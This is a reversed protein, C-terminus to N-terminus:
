AGSPVSDVAQRVRLRNEISASGKDQREGDIVEKVPKSVYAVMAEQLALVIAAKQEECLVEVWQAAFAEQLRLTLQSSV